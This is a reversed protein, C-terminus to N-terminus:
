DDDTAEKEQERKTEGKAIADRIEEHNITEVLVIAFGRFADKLKEPTRDWLDLEIEQGWAKFFIRPLMRRVADYMAAALWENPERM